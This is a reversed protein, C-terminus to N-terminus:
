FCLSLTELGIFVVLLDVGRVMLSVGLHGWLLLAYFEGKEGGTRQLYPKAVLIALVATAAAILGAATTLDSTEFRAGFSLGSPARLVFTVSAAIAALSVAGLWRRSSPVFAELLLVVCGAAALVIEPASAALDNPGFALFSPNL